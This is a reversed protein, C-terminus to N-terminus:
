SPPWNEIETPVISKLSAGNSFNKDTGAIRPVVWGPALQRFGMQFTMECIGARDPRSSFRMRSATGTSIELRKPAAAISRVVVSFTQESPIRMEVCRALSKFSCSIILESM